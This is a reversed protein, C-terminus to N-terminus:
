LQDIMEESQIPQHNNSQPRQTRLQLQQLHPPLRQSQNKTLMLGLSKFLLKMMNKPLLPLPLSELKRTPKPMRQRLEELDIPLLETVLDLLPPSQHVLSRLSSKRLEKRAKLILSSFMNTLTRKLPGDKCGDQSPFSPM